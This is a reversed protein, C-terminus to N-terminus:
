TGYDQICDSETEVANQYEKGERGRYVKVACKNTAHIYENEATRAASQHPHEPFTRSSHPNNVASGYTEGFVSRDAAADSPGAGPDLHANRFSSFIAFHSM